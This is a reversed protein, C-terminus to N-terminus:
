KGTGPENKPTMELRGFQASAVAWLSNTYFYASAEAVKLFKRARRIIIDSGKKFARMDAKLEAPLFQVASKKM